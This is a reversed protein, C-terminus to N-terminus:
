WRMRDRMIVDNDNLIADLSLRSFWSLEVLKIRQIVSRCQKTVLKQFLRAEM